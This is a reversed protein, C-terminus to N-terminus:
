RTDEKTVPLLPMNVMGELTYLQMFFTPCYKFNGDILIGDLIQGGRETTTHITECM